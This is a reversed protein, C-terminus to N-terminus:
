LAKRIRCPLRLSAVWRRGGFAFGPEWPGLAPTAGSGTTGAKPPRFACPAPEIYGVGVSWRTFIM